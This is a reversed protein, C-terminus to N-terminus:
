FNSKALQYLQYSTRVDNDLTIAEQSIMKVLQSIPKDLRYKSSNWQFNEIYDFISRSQVIRSSSSSGSSTQPNISNLIEVVKNVSSGLQHDIKNLEESEQVLSDLTGSQFDPIKLNYLPQKWQKFITRVM